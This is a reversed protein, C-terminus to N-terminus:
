CKLDGTKGGFIVVRYKDLATLLLQGLIGVALIEGIGVTIMMFWIMDEAGYAYRLVWPIMITNSLIPPLSVLYRNGRLAYSGAAGILTALSGFIVDLAAATGLLNATLCGIFLGPVAAPTFYPLICLAESIRFQIPGYSIPQFMLTLTVYIAAVAAGHVLYKSPHGAMQPMLRYMPSKQRNNKM